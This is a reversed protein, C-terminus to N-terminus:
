VLFFGFKTIQNAHAHGGLRSKNEFLHFEDKQQLFLAAGIVSIGSGIVAVKM